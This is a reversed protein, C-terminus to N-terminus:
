THIYIYICEYVYTYLVYMYWMCEIRVQSMWLVVLVFSSLRDKFLFRAPREEFEGPLEMGVVDLVLSGKLPNLHHNLGGPYAEFLWWSSAIIIACNGSRGQIMSEVFFTVAWTLAASSFGLMRGPILKYSWCGCNNATKLRCSNCCSCPSWLRERCCGKQRRPLQSIDSM